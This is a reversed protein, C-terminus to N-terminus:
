LLLTSDKSDAFVAKLEGWVTSGVCNSLLLLIRAPSAAGCTELIVAGIGLLLGSSMGPTELLSRRGLLILIMVMSSGPFGLLDLQKWLHGM